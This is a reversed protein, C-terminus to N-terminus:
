YAGSMGGGTLPCCNLFFHFIIKNDHFSSQKVIPSWEFIVYDKKPSGPGGGQLGIYDKSSRGGFFIVYNIFLYKVLIKSFM